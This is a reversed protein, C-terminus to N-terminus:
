GYFLAKYYSLVAMSGRATAIDRSWLQGAGARGAQLGVHMGHM